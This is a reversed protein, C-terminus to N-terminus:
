LWVSGCILTVDGAAQTLRQICPPSVPLKNEQCFHKSVMTIDSSADLLASVPKEIGQIWIDICPCREKSTGPSSSDAMCAHTNKGNLEEQETREEVNKIPDNNKPMQNIIPLFTRSLFDSLAFTTNPEAEVQISDNQNDIPHLINSQKLTFM